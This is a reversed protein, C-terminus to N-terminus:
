AVNQNIISHTTGKYKIAVPYEYKSLLYILLYTIPLTVIEFMVKFIYQDIVLAKILAIDLKGWYYIPTWIMSFVLEGLATSIVCRLGLFRGAFSFYLKSFIYCNLFYSCATAAISAFFITVAPNLVVVFLESGLKSSTPIQLTSYIILTMIAECIVTFLIIKKANENRYHNTIIDLLMFIICFPIIGGPLTIGFITIIRQAFIM